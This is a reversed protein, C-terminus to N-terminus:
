KIVHLDLQKDVLSCYVFIACSSLHVFLKVLDYNKSVNRSFIKKVINLFTTVMQDKMPKMM